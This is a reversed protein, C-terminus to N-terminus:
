SVGYAVIIRKVGIMWYGVESYYQTILDVHIKHAKQFDKEKFAIL